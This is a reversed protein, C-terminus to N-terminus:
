MNRRTLIVNQPGNRPVCSSARWRWSDGGVIVTGSQTSPNKETTAPTKPMGAASPPEFRISRRSSGATPRGSEGSSACPVSIRRITTENATASPPMAHAQVQYEAKGESRARANQSLLPASQRSIEARQFTSSPYSARTSPGNRFIPAKRQRPTSASKM